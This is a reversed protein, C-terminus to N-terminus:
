RWQKHERSCITLSTLGSGNSRQTLRVNVLPYPSWRAWNLDRLFGNSGPSVLVSSLNAYQFITDSSESNAAQQFLSTVKEELQPLYVKQIFEDMFTGIEGHEVDLSSMSITERASAVFALYPQFLITVNFPDPAVLLRHSRAQVTGDEDLRTVALRAQVGNDTMAVLGPVHIQMAQTLSQELEDLDKNLTKTDTDGFRFIAQPLSQYSHKIQGM